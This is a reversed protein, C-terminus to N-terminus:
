SELIAARIAQPDDQPGVFIASAVVATPQAKRAIEGVPLSRMDLRENRRPRTAIQTEAKAPRNRRNPARRPQREFAKVM